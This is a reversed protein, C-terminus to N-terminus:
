SKKVSDQGTLEIESYHSIWDDHQVRRVEEKYEDNIKPIKWKKIRKAQNFFIRIKKKLREM